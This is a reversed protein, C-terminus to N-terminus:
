SITYIFSFTLLVWAEIKIIEQLSNLLVGNERRTDNLGGHHLFM